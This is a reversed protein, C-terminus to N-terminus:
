QEIRIEHPLMMYVPGPPDSQAFASARALAEKVV